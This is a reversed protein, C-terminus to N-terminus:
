NHIVQKGLDTIQRKTGIKEVFGLDQLKNLENHVSSQPLNLEESIQKNGLM